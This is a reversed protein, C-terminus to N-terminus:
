QNVSCEVAFSQYQPQNAVNLNITVVTASTATVNGLNAGAGNVAGSAECAPPSPFPTIFALNFTGSHARDKTITAWDAGAIQMSAPGGGAETWAANWESGATQGPKQVANNVCRTLSLVPTSAFGAVSDICVYVPTAAAGSLNQAKAELTSLMGLLTLAVTTLLTLRLM